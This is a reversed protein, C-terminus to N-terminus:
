KRPVKDSNGKKDKSSKDDGEKNDKADGKDKSRDKMSYNGTGLVTNAAKSIMGGAYSQASIAVAELDFGYFSSTAIKNAFSSALRVMGDMAQVVILVAFVPLLLNVPSFAAELPFHAGYLAVWWVNVGPIPLCLYTGFINFSLLCTPCATFSLAAHLTLIFLQHLIALATFAFLPQFVMSIMNNIWSRFLKSTKEFLMFSIFIPALIFLVCLTIISYLYTVIVRLACILYSIIAVIILFGILIGVLGTCFLAWIKTWIAGNFLQHFIEDFMGFVAQVLESHTASKIDMTPIGTFPRVIDYTLEMSGNLLASFLYTNFFTWSNPSIIMVVFAIKLTRNMAEKQSVQAFGIMYSIGTYVLYLVLLARIGNIILPNQILKNFIYQVKGSNSKNGDDGIFFTTVQNVIDSITNSINSSPTDKKNVIVGYSGLTSERGYKILDPNIRFYIEGDKDIVIEQDSKDGYVYDKADKWVLKKDWPQYIKKKNEDEGVAGAIAYQLGDGNRYPSGKRSIEVEYGGFNNSYDRQQVRSSEPTVNDYEQQSIESKKPPGIPSNDVYETCEKYYHMTCCSLVKCYWPCENYSSKQCKTTIVYDDKYNIQFTDDQNTSTYGNLYGQFEFKDLPVYSASWGNINLSKRILTTRTGRLSCSTPDQEKIGESSIGSCQNNNQGSCDITQNNKNICYSKQTDSVYYCTSLEEGPFYNKGGFCSGNFTLDLDSKDPNYMKDSTFPLLAGKDKGVYNGFFKGGYAVRLYDGDKLKIGTDKWQSVRANWSGPKTGQEPKTYWYDPTIRKTEFGGLFITNGYPSDSNALSFKVKDGQKVDFNIPFYAFDVSEDNTEGSTDCATLTSIQSGSWKWGFVNSDSDDKIRYQSSFIQGKRCKVVCDDIIDQNLQAGTLSNPISSKSLELCDKGDRKQCDVSSFESPQDFERCQNECIKYCRSGHPRVYIYSKQSDGYDWPMYCDQFNISEAFGSFINTLVLLLGLCLLFCKNVIIKIIHKM